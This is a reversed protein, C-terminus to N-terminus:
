VKNLTVPAHSLSFKHVHKNTFKETLNSSIHIKGHGTSKNYNMSFKHQAILIWFLNKLIYM